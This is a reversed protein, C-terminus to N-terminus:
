NGKQRIWKIGNEELLDAVRQSAHGDEIIGTKKIFREVDGEYKEQDFALINRVLGEPDFAVSFPIEEWTFMLKGRDAIYERLDDIYLFVPQRILMSEFAASSYDTIMGDSAAIIENMDPRQSVDILRSDGDGVPMRGMQAALQPHLRLFVYWTGGFREELARIVQSFQISVAEASVGRTTNQSGGRFTPAYLLIRSDM